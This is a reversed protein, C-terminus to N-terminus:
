NRPKSESESDLNRRAIEQDQPRQAALHPEETDLASSPNM